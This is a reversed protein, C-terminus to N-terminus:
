IIMYEEKETAVGEELFSAFTDLRGQAEAWMATTNPVKGFDYEVQIKLSTEKMVAQKYLIYMKRQEAKSIKKM